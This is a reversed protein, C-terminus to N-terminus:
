QRTNLQDFFNSGDDITMSGFLSSVIPLLVVGGFFPSCMKRQNNHNNLVLVVELFPPHINKPQQPKTPTQLPQPASKNHIDNNSNSNGNSNDDRSINNDNKNNDNNSDFYLQILEMCLLPKQNNDLTIFISKSKINSNEQQQMSQQMM